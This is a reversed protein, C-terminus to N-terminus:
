RVRVLFSRQGTTTPPSSSLSGCFTWRLHTVARPTVPPRAAAAASPRTLDLDHRRRKSYFRLSPLTATLGTTGLNVVSRASKSIPTQRRFRTQSASRPPPHARRTRSPSSYTVDSRRPPRTTDLCQAGMQRCKALASRRGCRSPINRQVRFHEHRRHGTATLTTRRRRGGSAGITFRLSQDRTTGQNIGNIRCNYTGTGTDTYAGTGETLTVLNPRGEGFGRPDPAAIFLEITSNPRAFGALTIAGSLHATM